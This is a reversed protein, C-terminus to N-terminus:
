WIFEFAISNEVSLMLYAKNAPCVFIESEKPVSGDNELSNRFTWRNSRWKSMEVLQCGTPKRPSPVWTGGM